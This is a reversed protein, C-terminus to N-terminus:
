VDDKEEMDKILKNIKKQIELLQEHNLFLNVKFDTVIVNDLDEGIGIDLCYTEGIADLKVLTKQHSEAHFNLTTSM